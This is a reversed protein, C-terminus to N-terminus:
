IQKCLTKQIDVYKSNIPKKRKLKLNEKASNITKSDLPVYSAVTAVEPHGMTRFQLPINKFPPLILESSHMQLSINHFTDYDLSGGFCELEEKPPAAIIVSSCNYYKYLLVCVKDVNLNINGSLIYAMSCNLTCFYGICEYQVKNTNKSTNSNIPIRFASATNELEQVCWWCKM